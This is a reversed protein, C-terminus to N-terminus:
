KGNHCPPIGPRLEAPPLPSCHHFPWPSSRHPRKLRACSPFVDRRAQKAGNAEPGSQGTATGGLHNRWQLGTLAARTTHALWGTAAILEEITAGHDCELLAIVRALRSGGRPASPRIPGPEMAESPRADKADLKSPIAAQDPNALADNEEGEPGAADDVAIAKAGAATLKLAYSAGSEEDRRWIPDSAKAKVEKVFDASILKSAVKRATAGKLTPPAVLCLDKRQAAAGLLVAYRYTQYVHICGERRRNPGLWIWVGRWLWSWCRYFGTITWTSPTCLPPAPAPPPPAPLPPPLLALSASESPLPDPVPSASEL